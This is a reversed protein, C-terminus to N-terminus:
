AQYISTNAHIYDQAAKMFAQECSTFQYGEQEIKKMGNVIGQLVGFLVPSPQNFYLDKGMQEGIRLGFKNQEIHVDRLCISAM